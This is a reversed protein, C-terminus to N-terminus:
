FEGDEYVGSEDPLSPLDSLPREAGYIANAEYGSDSTFVGKVDVLVPRISNAAAWRVNNEGFEDIAWQWDWWSNIIDRQGWQFDIDASRDGTARGMTFTHSRNPRNKPHTNWANGSWRLFGDFTVDYSLRAKFEYPYSITAKQLEVTFPLYSGAPVTARVQATVTTTDSGGTTEAFSKTNDQGITVTTSGTMGPWEFKNEVSISKSVSTTDTKSWSVNRSDEVTGVFLQDRSSLNVIKGTLVTPEGQATTTIPGQTFYDSDLTYNFNSITIKSKDGCRYGDCGGSNNGQIVVEGGSRTVNMDEGVYQGGNGGVWAYGLYHALYSLPKIFKDEDHTLDYEIREVVDSADQRLHRDSLSLSPGVAAFVQPDGEPGEMELDCGTAAPLGLILALPFLSFRTFSKKRVSLM